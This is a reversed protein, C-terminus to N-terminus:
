QQETGAELVAGAGVRVAAAAVATPRPGLLRLLLGFRSLNRVACSVVGMVSSAMTEPKARLASSLPLLGLSRPAPLWGSEGYVGTAEAATLVAVVELLSLLLLLHRPTSAPLWHLM